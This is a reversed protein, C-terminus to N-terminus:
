VQVIVITVKLRKPQTKQGDFLRGICDVMSEGDENRDALRTTHVELIRIACQHPFLILGGVNDAVQIRTELIGRGIVTGNDDKLHVGVHEKSKYLIRTLNLPFNNRRNHSSTSALMQRGLTLQGHSGRGHERTPTVHNISLPVNEKNSMYKGHDMDKRCKLLMFSFLFELENM